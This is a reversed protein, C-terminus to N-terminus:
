KEDIDYLYATIQEENISPEKDQNNRQHTMRLHPTETICTVVM